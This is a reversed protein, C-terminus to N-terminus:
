RERFIDSEGRAALIRNIASPFRSPLGSRDGLAM